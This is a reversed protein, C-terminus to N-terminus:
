SPAPQPLVLDTYQFDGVLAEYAVPRLPPRATLQGAEARSGLRQAVLSAAAEGCIRGQCPGMGCRTWSKLQNVERAGDDLAADIERRTVDECRCVVTEPTIGDLLGPRPRMLDSIAFGFRESRRLAAKLRWGGNAAGKHGARLAVAHGALRGRLEAAAAGAIGAGDGAVFLGPVTTELDDDVVPIWGGREARFEHKAGLLRTVETAPVLGHGIALSDAEIAHAPAARPRWDGDVAVVEVSAVRDEGRVARVMSGRFIPVGAARIQKLWGVGRWLLDPRGALAPLNTLWDGMSSLEVLAAVRGGGKVIGAAVAALLPGVGAVVTRRGPLIRQSKLLVTAAALGVVGPLTWGPIPFIRETAGTAVILTPAAFVEIGAESMTRLIFGPAALWVARGFFAHVPSTQLAQRLAEGAAFDPGLADPDTVEFADPLARYVQGGAKPAEDLLAVRLGARSAEIAANAGAPGGGIVIVDYDRM